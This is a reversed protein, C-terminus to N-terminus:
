TIVATRWAIAVVLVVFVGILGAAQIRTPLRRRDWPVGAIAVTALGGVVFGGIHGLKSVGPVGFTFVFNLVITGILWQPNLQLERVMLLAAAFLGYIAGSAGAVAVYRSDFAYVTVSSGLAGLLYV